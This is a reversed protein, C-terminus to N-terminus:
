VNEIELISFGEKTFDDMLSKQDFADSTRILVEASDKGHEYVSVSTLSVNHAAFIRSVKELVGVGEPLSLILRTGKHGWSLMDLFARFIDDQTLIGTVKNDDDVVPLCGINHDLLKQAAEEMLANQNISIPHKIMVTRVDTKSLLYNLEYISLSTATNDAAIRGETILGVLRDDTDTVPIRHIKNFKMLDIVSSIKEDGTVTIPNKTMFDYVRFM